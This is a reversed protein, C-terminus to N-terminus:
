KVKTFERMVADNQLKHYESPPVILNEKVREVVKDFGVRSFFPEIPELFDPAIDEVPMGAEDEITIQVEELMGKSLFEYISKSRMLEGKLSVTSYNLYISTGVWLISSILVVVLVYVMKRLVGM